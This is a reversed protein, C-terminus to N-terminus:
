GQGERLHEGRFSFLRVGTARWGSPLKLIQWAKISPEFELEDLVDQRLRLEGM